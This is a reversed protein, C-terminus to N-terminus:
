ASLGLVVRAARALPVPPRGALLRVRDGATLRDAYFRAVLPEPLRYFRELVRYRQDPRAARFLLRNLLRLYRGRRWHRRTRDRTWAALAPADMPLADALDDAVRAAQPLSYGTTFHVLAGRAGIAPAESTLLREVDGDLPIPLAGEEEAVVAGDALRHAELWRDIGARLADRDLTPTDSYRTDEVLLEEATWPLVYVFRFGDEQAVTADMLIPRAIGHPRPLRVRRGLFKQWGVAVGPWSAAGRADLVLPAHLVAGDALVVRDAHVEAIRVGCRVDPLAASAVAHLRESTISAYGGALARAHAPFRVEHGHWSVAVFPALWARQATTLDGDHFSWTHRGGLTAGGEVVCVDLEPHRQRLRYAVLTGALGGGAVLLDTM